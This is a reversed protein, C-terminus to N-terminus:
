NSVEYFMHQRVHEPGRATLRFGRTLYPLSRSRRVTRGRLPHHVGAAIRTTPSTLNISSHSAFARARARHRRRRRGWWDSRPSGRHCSQSRRRGQDRAQNHSSPLEAMTPEVRSTVQHRQVSVKLQTTDHRVALGATILTYSTSSRYPRRPLAPPTSRQTTSPSHESPTDSSTTPGGSPPHRPPPPRRAVARQSSCLRPQRHDTAPSPM